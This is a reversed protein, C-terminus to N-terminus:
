DELMRILHDIKKEVLICQIETDLCKNDLNRCREFNKHVIVESLELSLEGLM